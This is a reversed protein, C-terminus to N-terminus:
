PPELSDKGKRSALALPQNRYSGYYSIPLPLETSFDCLIQYNAQQENSIYCYVVSIM